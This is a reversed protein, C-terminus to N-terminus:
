LCYSWVILSLSVVGREDGFTYLVTLNHEPRQLATEWEIDLLQYGKEKLMQKLDEINMIGQATEGILQVAAQILTDSVNESTSLTSIEDVRIWKTYEADWSESDIERYTGKGPIGYLDDRWLGTHDELSPSLGRERLYEEVTMVPGYHAVLRTWDFM